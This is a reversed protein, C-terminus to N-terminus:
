RDARGDLVLAPSGYIVITVLKDQCLNFARFEGCEQFFFCDLRPLVCKNQAVHTTVDTKHPEANSNPNSQPSVHGPICESQKTTKEFHKTELYRVDGVLDVTRKPWRTSTEVLCVCMRSMGLSLLAIYCQTFAFRAIACTVLIDYL